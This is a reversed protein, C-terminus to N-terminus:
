LHYFLKLKNDLLYQKEPFTGVVTHCDTIQEDVLLNYRVGNKDKDSVNSYPYVVSKIVSNSDVSDIPIFISVKANPIGLAKNALVRGAIVGYDSTHLKYTNEQNIKLSMIELVDYDRDLNVHIKTDEGINTRIRYSKNFKSM